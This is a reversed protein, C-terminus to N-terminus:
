LLIPGLLKWVDFMSFVACLLSVIRYHQHGLGEMMLALNSFTTALRSSAIGIRPGGGFPLLLTALTTSFPLGLGVVKVCFSIVICARVFCTQSAAFRLPRLALLLLALGTFGGVGATRLVLRFSLLLALSWLSHGLGVLSSTICSAIDIRFAGGFPLLVTALAIGFPLGFGVV